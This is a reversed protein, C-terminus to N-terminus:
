STIIRELVESRVDGAQVACIATSSRIRKALTPVIPFSSVLIGRAAIGGYTMLNNELKQIHEQKVNGAKCEVLWLRKGDTFACDFEGSPPENPHHVKGSYDVEMGIRLDHILGREEIERLLTFVYEELWGGGLYQGFDDCAPLTCPEGNLVLTADGKASFSAQSQGWKWSFPPNRRKGWPVRYKRFEPNQYLTGFVKRADWLEKTVDARAARCPNEEWRGNTIVDFGNVVFYDAVSKVGIFPVTVGDRIFIINHENIEFYFPELGREWCATLAGAFMLKTGGTLNVAVRAMSPLKSVQKEIARRTDAPKFPDQITVTRSQCTDPLCRSLVNGAHQYDQTTIFVHLKAKFQLMGFYIPMRERGLLHIIADYESPKATRPGAVVPMLLEKPLDITEPPLRPESSAIVAINHQPHSRAILAWTYAMVPTGPSIYTTITKESADSLALNIASAAADFIARADNLHRLERPIVQVNCSVGNAALERKLWDTFLVHGPETNSLADVVQQAKDRPSQLRTELDSIRWKEWKARIEDTFGHPSKGPNTYALIVVDTYQKTKLASLIPGDTPELGLAARLDTIGYWTLLYHKM